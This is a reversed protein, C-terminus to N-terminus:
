PCDVRLDVGRDRLAQINAAQAACDIPNGPLNITDGAGVGPNAVLPSLDGVAAQVM